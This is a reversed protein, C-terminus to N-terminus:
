KVEYKFNITNGARQLDLSLNKAERLQQFIQLGKEPSDLNIGNVAHLIDGRKIGMQELLTGRQIHQVRFGATKGNVVNPAIRAQKIVSAIDTRIREAEHGPIVWRNNGLDQVVSKPALRAFGNSAVRGPTAAINNEMTLVQRSGDASILEVRDRMISVLTGNTGIKQQLSVLTIVNDISIVALSDAGAVATGILRLNSPARQAAKASAGANNKTTKAAEPAPKSSNFINRHLIIRNDGPKLDLGINASTPQATSLTVLNSNLNIKAESTVLWALSLGLIACLSIYYIPLARFFLSLM